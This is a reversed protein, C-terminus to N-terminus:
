QPASVNKVPGPPLKQRASSVARCYRREGGILSMLPIYGDFRADV